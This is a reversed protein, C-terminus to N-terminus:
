SSRLIERAIRMGEKAVERVLGPKPKLFIYLVKTEPTLAVHLVSPYKKVFNLITNFTRDDEFYALYKRSNIEVEKFNSTDVDVGKYALIKPNLLHLKPPRKKLHYVLYLRDHRLTLMSIPYYLISLRPMLGLSAEVKEVNDRNIMYQAKFGSYLGLLMYEKDLPNLADELERVYKIMLELNKKRGYYFGVSSAGALGFIFLLMVLDLLM